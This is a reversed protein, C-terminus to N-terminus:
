PTRAEQNLNARGDNSPIEAITHSVNAAHPSSPPATVGRFGLGRFRFGRFGELDLIESRVERQGVTLVLMLAVVGSAVLLSTVSPLMLWPLAGKRNPLRASPLMPGLPDRPRTQPAIHPVLSAESPGLEAGGGGTGLLWQSLCPPVKSRQETTKLLLTIRGEGIALLELARVYSLSPRFFDNVSYTM